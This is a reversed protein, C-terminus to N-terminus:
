KPGFKLFKAGFPGVWCGACCCVAHVTFALLIGPCQSAIISHSRLQFTRLGPFKFANHRWRWDFWVGASIAPSLLEVEFRWWPEYINAKLLMAIKILNRLHTATAPM